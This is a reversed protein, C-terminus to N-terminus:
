GKYALILLQLNAEMTFDLIKSTISFVTTLVKEKLIISEIEIKSEVNM